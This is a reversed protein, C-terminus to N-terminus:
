PRTGALRFQPLTVAAREEFTVEVPLGCSLEAGAPVDVLNTLIRLGPQEDLEVFAMVYPLADVFSAHLARNVIAYSYLVGRGSVETLEFADSQCHACCIEPPYQLKRCSRCRQLVLRHQAAAEWYFSSADDPAPLPRSDTDAM